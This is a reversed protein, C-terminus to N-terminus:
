LYVVEKFVRERIEPRVADYPVVDVKIELVEELFLALGVFEFLTAGKYFKVLVDIDSEEKQEGRVYSGFIGIIEAKYERKIREQLNRLKEKIKELNKM